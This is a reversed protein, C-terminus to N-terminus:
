LVYRSTCWLLWEIVITVTTSYIPFAKKRPPWFVTENYYFLFCLCLLYNKELPTFHQLLEMQEEFYHTRNEKNFKYDNCLHFLHYLHMDVFNILVINTDMSFLQYEIYMYMYMYVNYIKKKKVVWTLLTIFKHKYEM